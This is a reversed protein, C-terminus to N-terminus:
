SHELLEQAYIKLKGHLNDAIINLDLQLLGLHPETVYNLNPQMSYILRSNLSFDSIIIHWPHTLQKKHNLLELHRCLLKVYVTSATYFCVQPLKWLQNDKNMHGECSWCTQILRTIMLEYVLPIVNREIPYRVPDISLAQPAQDCKSSCEDLKHQQCGPCPALQLPGPQEIFNRLDKEANSDVFFSEEPEPIKM